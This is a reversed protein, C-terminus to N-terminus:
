RFLHVGRSTSQCPENAGRKARLLIPLMFAMRLRAGRGQGGDIQLRLCLMRLRDDRGRSEQGAPGAHEQTHTNGAPDTARVQFNHGGTALGSSTQPTTCATFASGDLSCAFASGAQTATFVSRRVPAAPSCRPPAGRDGMHVPGPHRRYKGAADIAQVQFTHNGAALGTYSRPSMCAAFVATLNASSPASGAETSTFSFSATTSNTAAPPSSTIHHRVWQGHQRYLREGLVEGRNGGIGMARCDFEKLARGFM